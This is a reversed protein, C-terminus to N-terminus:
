RKRKSADKLKKKAGTGGKKRVLEQLISVMEKQFNDYANKFETLTKQVAGFGRWESPILGKELGYLNIAMELLAEYAYQRIHIKRKLPEEKDAPFPTSIHFLINLKRIVGSVTRSLTGKMEPFLLHDAALTTQGWQILQLIHAVHDDTAPLRKSLSLEEPLSSNVIQNITDQTMAKM